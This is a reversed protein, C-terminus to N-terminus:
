WRYHVGNSARFGDCSKKRGDIIEAEIEEQISPPCDIEHAAHWAHGVGSEDYQIPRGCLVVPEDSLEATYVGDPREVSVPGRWRDADQPLEALADCLLEYTEDSADQDPGLVASCDLIGCQESWVGDRSITVKTVTKQGKAQGSGTPEPSKKAPEGAAPLYGSYPNKAAASTSVRSMKPNCRTLEM